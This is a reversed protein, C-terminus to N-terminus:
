GIGKAGCGRQIIKRVVRVPLLSLLLGMSSCARLPEYPHSFKNYRRRRKTERVYFKPTDLVYLSKPLTHPANHWWRQYVVPRCSVYEAAPLCNLHNVLKSYQLLPQVHPFCTLWEHIRIKMKELTFPPYTKSPYIYILLLTWCHRSYSITM